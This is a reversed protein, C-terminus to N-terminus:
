SPSCTVPNRLESCPRHGHSRVIDKGTQDALYRLFGAALSDAPLEGYSYAYETEWLPYVGQAAEEPTARRDDIRVTWLDQRASAAGNESYGITGPIHAVADLVEPTSGRACRVVPGQAGPALNVCDNSTDGPEREGNLIKREFVNRTGSDSYRDVIRVPVDSGGIEKWNLVQNHYIRRIQELTLNQVKMAKNVVLTFLSLAVPRPLLMPSGARKLGDSFALRDPIESGKAQGAADLARLGDDSGKFEYKIDSGPCTRMYANGAEELAPKFATSGILTLEGRACGLPARDDRLSVVFMAIIVLVLFSILSIAQLSTGTRSRTEQVGGRGSGGKIGGVVKPGQFERSDDKNDPARELAALIKYHASPNLPVKPLEIVGDRVNLGADEGFSRLLHEDSLETVVMGAVTRGPFTVQIGVRDNDLVAYDSTDIQTAGNNEIRLLVFSPDVLQRGGEHQLQQLVGAYQSSIEDTATTDMQVRYGLRKRGVFVFERLFAIIAVIVSFLTLVIEWPFSNM